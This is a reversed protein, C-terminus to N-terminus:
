DLLFVHFLLKGLEMCWMGIGTDRIAEVRKNGTLKM